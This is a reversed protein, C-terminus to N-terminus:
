KPMFVSFGLTVALNNFGSRKDADKASLNILMYSVGISALGNNGVTVKIGGKAGFSIGSLSTGGSESATYGVLGEIYPFVSSRSSFTYGPTLFLAYIKTSESAGASKLINIGPSLGLFFGNSVYYNLFPMFQLLSTSESAATGDSVVTTSSYSVTGGLEVCNKTAFQAHVNFAVASLLLLVITFLTFSKKM